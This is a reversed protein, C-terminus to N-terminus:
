PLSLDIGLYPGGNGAFTVYGLKGAVRPALQLMVGADIVANSTGSLAVLSGAAYGSLAPTFQLSAGAGVSFGTSSGFGSFSSANALAGSLWVDAGAPTLPFHYRVGVDLLGATTGGVSQYSYFATLDLAPSIVHSFGVSWVPAASLAAISFDIGNRQPPVIQAAAPRALSLALASSGILLAAAIRTAGTIRKM